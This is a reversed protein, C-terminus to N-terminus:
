SVLTISVTKVAFGRETQQYINSNVGFNILNFHLQTWKVSHVLVSIM